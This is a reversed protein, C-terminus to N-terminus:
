IKTIRNTVTLYDELIKCLVEKTYAKNESLLVLKGFFLLKDRPIKNGSADRSYAYEDTYRPLPYQLINKNILSRTHRNNLIRDQLMEAMGSYVYQGMTYDATVDAPLQEYPMGSYWLLKMIEDIDNTSCIRGTREHSKLTKGVSLFKFYETIKDQVKFQGAQNVQGLLVIEGPNYSTVNVGRRAAIDVQVMKRYVIEEHPQPNRWVASNPNNLSESTVLIRLNNRGRLFDLSETYTTIVDDKHPIAMHIYVPYGYQVKGSQLKANFEAIQTANMTEIKKEGGEKPPRGRKVKTLNTLEEQILTIPENKMFIYQVLIENLRKMIPTDIGKTVYDLINREIIYAKTMPDLSMIYDEFEKTEFNYRNLSEYLKGSDEVVQEDLIERITHDDVSIIGNTYYSMNVQAEDTSLNKDLYYFQNDERLYCKYGFRDTLPIRNTIIFYLAKVIYISRMPQGNYKISNFLEVAQASNYYQFGKIVEQIAIAVMDGSYLLDHNSYNVQINQYPMISDVCKYDCEQYDCSATGPVDTSKVNREKHIECTVSCQKLFRLIRHINRDKTEAVMYLKLDVIEKGSLPTLGQSILYDNDPLAAHRYIKVPIKAMEPLGVADLQKVKEDYPLNSNQIEVIKNRIREKEEELLDNHSTARIGRSIAQYMGSEHWGPMLMHIQLVNNVNIADRGVESAILVKIYEGHRNEYSNMAELLSKNKNEQSNAGVLLGYRPRKDIRVGKVEKTDACFKRESTTTNFMSVSEDYKVFGMAEFALGLLIASGGKVLETYVFCNGPESICLRLIDYFKCSLVRIAATNSLWAALNDNPNNKDPHLPYYNGGENGVYKTFGIEGETDQIPSRVNVENNIANEVNLGLQQNQIAANLLAQAEEKGKKTKARNELREALTAGGGYSGDPFVFNSAQLANIDLANNQALVAKYYVNTQTPSMKSCYLKSQMPYIQGNSEVPLPPTPVQQNEQFAPQSGFNEARIYTVRGRFRPELDELTAKSYDYNAPFQPMFYQAMVERPVTRYDLEKPLNPFLVRIDNPTALTYDYDAPLDGNLPLVLNFLTSLESTSNVMPTATSIIRKCRKAVHFVRNINNYIQVKEKVSNVKTDNLFINHAEDIWFITDSFERYLEQDERVKIEVPNLRAREEPTVLKLVAEIRKNFAKYGSITYWKSIAATVKSKMESEIATADKVKGINQGTKNVASINPIEKEYDRSSCRCVLQNRFEAKTIPGKVLVIVKKFHSVKEDTNNPDTFTKLFEDYAYETFGIVSCSKGTGTEDLIILDDYVRLLRQTLTQHKFLEGKKSPRKDGPLYKMAAYSYDTSVWSQFGPTSVSLHNELLDSLEIEHSM